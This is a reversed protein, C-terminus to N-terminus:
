GIAIISNIVATVQEQIADDPAAALSEAISPNRLVQMALQRPAIKVQDRLVREAWDKRMPHDLTDEPEASIDQAARWMAVQCRSQFETDNATGFIAIYSM